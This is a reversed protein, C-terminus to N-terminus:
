RGNGQEQVPPNKTLQDLGFLAERLKQTYGELGDVWGPSETQLWSASSCYGMLSRAAGEIKLLQKHLRANESELKSIRDSPPRTTVAVSGDLKRRVGRLDRPYNPDYGIADNNSM